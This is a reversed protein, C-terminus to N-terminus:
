MPPAAARMADADLRRGLGDLTETLAAMAAARATSESAAPEGPDTAVAGLVAGTRVDLIAAEARAVFREGGFLSAAGTKEATVRYVIVYDLGQAAGARRLRTTATQQAADAGQALDAALPTVLRLAGFRGRLREAAKDWAPAAEPPAPIPAADAGVHVLGFLGGRRFPTAARYLRDIEMERALAVADAEAPSLPAAAAAATRPPTAAPAAAPRPPPSSTSSPAPPTCAVLAAAFALPLALSRM